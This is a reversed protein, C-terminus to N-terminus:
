TGKGKSPSYAAATQGQKAGTKPDLVMYTWEIDTYALTVQDTALPDGQDNGDFGYGTIIVNKLKYVLYPEQKNKITSCLHIEVEKFWTGNACALALAPTSKDLERVLTVDGLTTSGQTRQHDRANEPISRRIPFSMREIIVWDLHDADSAQGKIEGLKMFAPM